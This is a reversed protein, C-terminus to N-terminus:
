KRSVSYIFPIDEIEKIIKELQQSNKIKVGFECNATNNKSIRTQTTNIVVKNEALKSLLDNLLGPRDKGSIKLEVQYNPRSKNWSVEMQNEIPLSLINHCDVRHVSIKRKATKYGLIKDGPLPSCCRAM